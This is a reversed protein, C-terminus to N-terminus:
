KSNPSYLSAEWHHFDCRLMETIAKKGFSWEMKSYFFVRRAGHIFKHHKPGTEEEERRRKKKKITKPHTEKISNMSNTVTSNKSNLISDQTWFEGGAGLM